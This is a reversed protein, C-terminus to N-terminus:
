FEVSDLELCRTLIAEDAASGREAIAAGPDSVYALLMVTGALMLLAGASDRADPLGNLVADTGGTELREM